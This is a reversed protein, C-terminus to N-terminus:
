LNFKPKKEPSITPSLIVVILYKRKIQKYVHNYTLCESKVYIKIYQMTKLIIFKKISLLEGTLQWTDTSTEKLVCAGSAGGVCLEEEELGEFEEADRLVRRRAKPSYM